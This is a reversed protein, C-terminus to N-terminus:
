LKFYVLEYDLVPNHFTNFQGDIRNQKGAPGPQYFRIENLNNGKKDAEKHTQMSPIYYVTMAKLSNLADDCTYKKANKYNDYFLKRGVYDNHLDMRSAKTYIMYNNLYKETDVNVDNPFYKIINTKPNMYARMGADENIFKGFADKYKGNADCAFDQEHLEVYKFGLEVAATTKYKGWMSDCIAFSWYAHQVANYCTDEKGGTKRWADFTTTRLSEIIGKYASTGSIWKQRNNENYDLVNTNVSLMRRANHNRSFYEGSQNSETGVFVVRWGQLTNSQSESYAIIGSNDSGNNYIFPATPPSTVLSQHEVLQDDMPILSIDKAAYGLKDDLYYNCRLENNGSM